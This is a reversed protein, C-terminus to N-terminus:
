PREKKTIVITYTKSSQDTHLYLIQSKEDWKKKVRKMGKDGYIKLDYGHPYHRKPIFIETPGKVNAKTKYKLLFKGSNIDFSYGLPYGAVARPYTRVLYHLKKNENGKWDVLGWSGRTPSNSWWMWSAGMYDFMNLAEELYTDFGPIDENGGFEGVWLPTQHLEVEKTRAHSWMSVNKRDLSNYSINEHLLIPYIHPAYALRQEGKRPDYVRKLHSKFGFNVGLSRPEFFIWKDQDVERIGKILREYMPGLSKKEFSRTFNSAHPENMLDYGLVGPHDKFKSAVKKWAGIFHDQLYPYKKYNWFRKFAETVAPNLYNLWWLHKLKDPLFKTIKTNKYKTFRGVDTAWDPAGNGGVAYGYVDQHMDLVVWAGNDTYWKVRKAVKELYAEDYVGRQPEVAAWFILLRVANMGFVKTEQIVDKEKVWSMFEPDSKSSNSSNVGHLILSRGKSDTLYKIKKPRTIGKYIPPETRRIIKKKFYKKAKTKCFLGLRVENPGCKEYCTKGVGKYNEECKEYCLGAVKKMGEPCAKNFKFSRERKYSKKKRLSGKKYCGLGLDKFGKKCDKYCATGVGKTGKPCDRHCLGLQYEFGKQCKPLIGESSFKYDEEPDLAQNRDLMYMIREKARKVEIEQSPTLLSALSPQSLALFTTLIALLSFISARM